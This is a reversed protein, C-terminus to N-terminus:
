SLLALLEAKTMSADHEVGLETLYALLDAKNIKTPDKAIADNGALAAADAAARAIQEAEYAAQAEAASKIFPLTKGEVYREHKAPDFDSENITTFPYSGSTAKIRVTPCEM